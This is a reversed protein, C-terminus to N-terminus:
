PSKHFFPAGPSGFCKETSSLTGPSWLQTSLSPTASRPGSAAAAQGSGGGGAEAKLM